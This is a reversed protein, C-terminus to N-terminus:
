DFSPISGVVASEVMLSIHGAAVVVVVVIAVDVVSPIAVFAVGPRRERARSSRDLWEVGAEVDTEVDVDRVV